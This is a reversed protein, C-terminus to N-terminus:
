FFHKCSCHDWDLITALCTVYSDINLKSLAPNYQKSRAHMKLARSGGTDLWCQKELMLISHTHSLSFFFFPSRPRSHYFTSKQGQTGGYRGVRHHELVSFPLTLLSLNWLHSSLQKKEHLKSFFVRLRCGRKRRERQREWFSTPPSSTWAEWKEKKNEFGFM